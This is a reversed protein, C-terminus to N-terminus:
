AGRGLRRDIFELVLAPQEEWEHAFVSLRRDQQGVGVLREWGFCTSQPNHGSLVSM